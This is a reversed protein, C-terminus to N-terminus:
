KKIKDFKLPGGCAAEITKTEPTAFTKVLNKKVSTWVENKHECYIKCFIIEKETKIFIFPTTKIGKLENGWSVDDCDTGLCTLLTKFATTCSFSDKFELFGTFLRQYVVQDYHNKFTSKKKLTVIKKWQSTVKTELIFDNYKSNTYREASESFEQTFSSIFSAVKSDFSIETIEQSNTISSLGFTLIILPLIKIKLDAVVKPNFATNNSFLFIIFEKAIIQSFSTRLM